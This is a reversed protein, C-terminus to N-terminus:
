CSPQTHDCILKLKIESWSLEATHQFIKTHLVQESTHQNGESAEWDGTVWSLEVIRTPVKVVFILYTRILFIMVIETLMTQCRVITCYIIKALAELINWLIQNRRWWTQNSHPSAAERFVYYLLPSISHATPCPIMAPQHYQPTTAPAPAHPVPWTTLCVCAINIYTLLIIMNM